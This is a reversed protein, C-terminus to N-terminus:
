KKKVYNKFLNIMEQKHALQLPTTGFKDKLDQSAGHELLTKAVEVHGRMAAYLLPTHNFSDLANVVSPDHM